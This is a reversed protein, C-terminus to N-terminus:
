QGPVIIRLNRPAGPVGAPQVAGAIRAVFVDRRGNANGWNSSFAVLRGDKSINAFPADSYDNFVSRHHCIRRVQGSADTAVQFIENDFPASVAGGNDNYHSVLGWNEDAARMSFHGTKNGTVLGPVLTCSLYRCLRQLPPSRAIGLGM